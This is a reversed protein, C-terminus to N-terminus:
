NNSDMINDNYVSATSLFPDNQKHQIPSNLIEELIKADNLITDTENLNFESQHAQRQSISKIQNRINSKQSFNKARNPSM